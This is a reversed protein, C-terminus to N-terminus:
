SVCSRITASMVWAFDLSGRLPTDSENALERTMEFVAGGEVKDEANPGATTVPCKRVIAVMGGRM